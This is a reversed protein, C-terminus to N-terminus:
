SSRGALGAAASRQAATTTARSKRPGQPQEVTAVAIADRVRGILRISVSRSGSTITSVITFRSPVVRDRKMYAHDDPGIRRSTFRRRRMTEAPPIHPGAYAMRAIGPATAAYLGASKLALRRTVMGCIFEIIIGALHM